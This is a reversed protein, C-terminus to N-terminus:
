VLKAWEFVVYGVRVDNVLPVLEAPELYQSRHTQFVMGDDMVPEPPDGPPLVPLLKGEGTKRRKPPVILALKRTRSSRNVVFVTWIFVEGVYVRSPGTFTVTLGQLPNDVLVAPSSVASSSLTTFGAAGPPTFVVAPSAGPAPIHAPRIGSSSSVTAGHIIQGLSPPRHSRQIGSSPIFTSPPPPAFDVTTTWQTSIQPRCIGSVLVMAELSVSILRVASTPLSQATITNNSSADEQSLNYLFTLDDRPKCTAPLSTAPSYAIPEARGGTVAIHVSQITVSCDSFPTVDLDLSAIVSQKSGSIIRSYRLRINIAPFIEFGRKAAYGMPRVVLQSAPTVPIVRAVRLASLRPPNGLLAPDNGFAELLNIGAPQRSPMYEEDLLPQQLEAPRLTASCSLIVKPNNLRARPHGLPVSLKWVALRGSADGFSLRPTENEDIVTQYLLHATENERRGPHESQRKPSGDIASVELSVALRALYHDFLTDDLPALIQLIVFVPLKEDTYLNAVSNRVMYAYWPFLGYFLSSRQTIHAVAAISSQSTPAAPKENGVSAAIAASINLGTAQPVLLELRASESVEASQTRRHGPRGAPASMVSDIYAIATGM